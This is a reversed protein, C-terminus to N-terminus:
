KGALDRMAAQVHPNAQMQRAFALAAKSMKPFRQPTISMGAASLLASERRTLPPRQPPRQAQNNARADTTRM